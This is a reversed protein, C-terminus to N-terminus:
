RHGKGVLLPVGTFSRYYLADLPNEAYFEDDSFNGAPLGGTLTPRSYGVVDSLSRM